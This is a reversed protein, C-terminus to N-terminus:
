VETDMKAIIMSSFEIKSQLLIADGRSVDMQGMIAFSVKPPLGELIPIAKENDMLSLCKCANIPTMKQLLALIRPNAM